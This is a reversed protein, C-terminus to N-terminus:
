RNDALRKRIRSLSEPKIGLYNAIQYQPVRQILEPRTEVLHLYREEPNHSVWNDFELSKRVMFKETLVRTLSELEPHEKYIEKESDPNGYLAFTEELTSIYYKSPLKDVYSSPTIVNGETYFGTIKEEGNKLFYKKMCGEMIFYCENAIQGERLITTGKKLVKITSHKLIVQELNKTIPIYKSLFAIIDQDNENSM